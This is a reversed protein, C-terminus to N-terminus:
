PNAQFQYRIWWTQTMRIHNKVPKRASQREMAVDPQVVIPIDDRKAVWGGEAEIRLRRKPDDDIRM